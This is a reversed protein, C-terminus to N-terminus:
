KKEEKPSKLAKYCIKFNTLKKSCIKFKSDLARIWSQQTLIDAAFQDLIVSLSDDDVHLYILREGSALYIFYDPPFRYAKNPVALAAPKGGEPAIRPDALAALAQAASAMFFCDYTIRRGDPGSFERHVLERFGHELYVIGGGDMYDFISGNALPKDPIGYREESATPVFGRPPLNQAGQAQRVPLLACLLFIGCRLCPNM